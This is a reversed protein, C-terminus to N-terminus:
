LSICYIGSHVPCNEKYIIYLIRLQWRERLSEFSFEIEKLKNKKITRPINMESKGSM